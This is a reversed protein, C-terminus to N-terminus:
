GREAVEFLADLFWRRSDYYWGSVRFGAQEAFARVDEERYKCSIETQVAEWAAFHVREGAVTVDQERESLLYSEMARLKPNYRALHRFASPEFNAGLERNLRQLLNMNFSATIEQEDDYARQLLEPDKLLDFGLLLCDGPVLARRWTSLLRAADSAELNGINSGLFLALRRHGPFREGVEALGNTYDGEVLSLPIEPSRERHARELGELAARSVDVPAYVLESTVEGLARLLIATKSGDGAGLDVVSLRENSFRRAMARAHVRLVEEEARSLYYSPLGMIRQFLRSGEADYLVSSSVRKPSRRLGEVVERKLAEVDRALAKVDRVLVESSAQPNSLHPKSAHANSAHSGPASPRSKSRRAGAVGPDNQGRASGEVSVPKLSSM